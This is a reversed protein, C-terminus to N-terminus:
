CIKDKLFLPPSFLAFKTLFSQLLWNSACNISDMNFYLYVFASWSICARSSGFHAKLFIVEKLPRLFATVTGVCPCCRPSGGSLDGNIEDLPSGKQSVLYVETSVRLTANKHEEYKGALFEKTASLSGFGTEAM